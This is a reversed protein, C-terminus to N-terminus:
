IARKQHTLIWTKTSKLVTLYMYSVNSDPNLPLEPIVVPVFDNFVQLLSAFSFATSACNEAVIMLAM